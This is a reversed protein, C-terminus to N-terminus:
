PNDNTAKTKIYEIIETLNEYPSIKELILGKDYKEIRESQAGMNYCAVPIQMSIAESTTYSFTEPLISAIFIIDIKHKKIIKPLQSPKYKGTITINNIDNPNEINGIVFLKISNDSPLNKSMQYIIDRGKANSINGITAINICDHSKVTVRPLKKVTHPIIVIKDSLQPYIQIFMEKIKESFIIVEDVTETFFDGWKERWTKITTAGSRFIKNEYENNGLTKHKWCYECGKKHKFNCFNGDCDILTFCPCLSQFDHGRFSIHANRKIRKVFDLIKLSNAYGVLNNVVIKSINLTRCFKELDSLKDAYISTNTNTGITLSYKKVWPWYQMRIVNNNKTLTEFQNKTYTETGGGLSHDIWLIIPRNRKLKKTLSFIDKKQQYLFKKKLCERVNRRTRPFPILICFIHIISKKM